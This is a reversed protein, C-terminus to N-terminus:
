NYSNIIQVKKNKIGFAIKGELLDKALKGFIENRWGKFSNLNEFNGEAILELESQKIILKQAVRQDESVFKVLVKLLELLALSKVKNKKIYNTEPFLNEPVMGADKLTEIIENIVRKDKDLSFVRLKKFDEASRPSLSAIELLTDDRLVKNRPVNRNISVKERWNALHKVKNLYARKTSKIKLKKWSEETNIEYNKSETLGEMEEKIWSERKHISIENKLIEYVKVLHTVDSLAYQIQKESLPRFSWNSVRSSKDIRINLLRNVLQEYSVQDGFGCVMAAIQTDYVSKPLQGFQQYFIEMDQRGSHIIKIVKEQRIFNWLSKLDLEKSLPDIIFSHNRSAIQILCLKSFYTRERIFETDIAIYDENEIIKINKELEKNTDIITIM